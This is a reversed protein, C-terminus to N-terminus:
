KVGEVSMDGIGRIGVLPVVSGTRYEALREALRKAKGELLMTAYRRAAEAKESQTNGQNRLSAARPGNGLELEKWAEKFLAKAQQEAAFARAIAHEGNRRNQDIADLIAKESTFREPKTSM